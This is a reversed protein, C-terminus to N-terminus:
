HIVPNFLTKSGVNDMTTSLIFCYTSRSDPTYCHHVNNNVVTLLTPVLVDILVNNLGTTLLIAVLQENKATYRDM